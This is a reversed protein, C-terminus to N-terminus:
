IYIQCFWMTVKTKKLSVIYRPSAIHWHLCVTKGFIELTWFEDLFILYFLKIIILQCDLINKCVCDILINLIRSLKLYKITTHAFNYQITL